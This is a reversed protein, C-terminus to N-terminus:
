GPPLMLPRRFVAEIVALPCEVRDGCNFPTFMPTNDLLGTLHGEPTIGDVHVWMHERAGDPGFFTKKIWAGLYEKPDREALQPDPKPANKWHVARINSAPEKYPTKM